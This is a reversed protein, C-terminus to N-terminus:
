TAFQFLCCLLTTMEILLLEGINMSKLKVTLSRPAAVVKQCLSLARLAKFYKQGLWAKASNKQKVDILKISSDKFLLDKGGYASSNFMTSSTSKSRFFEDLRLLSQKLGEFTNGPRSMVVRSPIRALNCKEFDGVDARTGDPCLLNFDKGPNLDNDRGTFDFV